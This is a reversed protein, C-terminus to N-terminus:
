TFQKLDDMENLTIKSCYGLDESDPPGARLCSTLSFKGEKESKKKKGNQCKELLDPLKTKNEKMLFNKIITLVSLM